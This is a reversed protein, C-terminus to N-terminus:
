LITQIPSLIELKGAKQLKLAKFRSTKSVPDLLGMCLLVVWSQWSFNFFVEFGQRGILVVALSMLLLTWGLYWSVVAEHFKKMKRMAITGGSALFPNFGLVMYYVWIPLNSEAKAQEGAGSVSFVIVACVSLIVMLVEFKRITEKLLMYALVVTVLPQLNNIIAIVTIPLYKTTGFLIANTLAGQVSRFVLPKIQDRTIGDWVAKKLGVNQWFVMTVLSIVSRGLLMQFPLLNREPNSPDNNLEFLTSALIVAASRAVCFVLYWM